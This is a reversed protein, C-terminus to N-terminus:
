DSARLIVLAEISTANNAHLGYRKYTQLPVTEVHQWGLSAAISALHAPTDIDFRRGGLITHNGGVILGFPSNPKVLKRVASFGEAM